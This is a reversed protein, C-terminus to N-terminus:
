SGALHRLCPPSVANPLSTTASIFRSPMATSTECTEGSVSRSTSATPLAGGNADCEDHRASVSLGRLKVSSCITAMALAPPTTM